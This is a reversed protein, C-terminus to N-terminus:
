EDEQIKWFSFSIIDADQHYDGVNMNKEDDIKRYKFFDAANDNNNTKLILYVIM